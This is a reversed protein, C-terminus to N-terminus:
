VLEAKSIQYVLELHFISYRSLHCSFNCYVLLPKSGEKKKMNRVEYETIEVGMTECVSQGKLQPDCSGTALCEVLGRQYVYNGVIM